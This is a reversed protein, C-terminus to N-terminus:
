ATEKVHIPVGYNSVSFSGVSAMFQGDTSYFNVQPPPKPSFHNPDNFGLELTHLEKQFNSWARKFRREVEAPKM